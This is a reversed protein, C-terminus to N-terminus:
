RQPEWGSVAWGGRARAVTALTVHFAPPLAEYVREGTTRERTVVVWRDDGDRATALAVIKGENAIRSTQLEDDRAAEAIARRQTASAEGVAMAALRRRHDALTRYTWNVYLEGFREIAAQPSPAPATAPTDDRYPRRPQAENDVIRSTTDTSTQTSSYPDGIDCGACCVGVMVATVAARRQLLHTTRM